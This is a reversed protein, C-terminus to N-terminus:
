WYGRARMGDRLAEPIPEAAGPPVWTDATLRLLREALPRTAAPDTVPEVRGDAREYEGVVPRGTEVLVRLEGEALSARPQLEGATGRGFAQSLAGRQRLPSGDLAPGLDQGDQLKPLAIGALVAATPLVDVQSVTDTSVRASGGPVRIVMPVRVVARTLRDRHGVLAEGHDAVVIVVTNDLKGASELSRLLRGLSADAATLGADYARDLSERVAPDADARAQIWPNPDGDGSWVSPTGSGPRPLAARWAQVDPHLPLGGEGVAGFPLHAERLTVLAFFPGADRQIWGMLAEPSWARVDPTNDVHQVDRLVDSRADLTMPGQEQLIAATRWGAAALLGPLTPAGAVLRDLPEEVRHHGPILGTLLSAHAANTWTGNAWARTFQVGEAALKDLNPTTGGAYGYAGVRDARASCLTVLLLNPRALGAPLGSSGRDTACAALTAAGGALLARRSPGISSGSLM